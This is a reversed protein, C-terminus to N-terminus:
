GGPSAKHDELWKKARVQTQELVAGTLFSAAKDRKRAASEALVSGNKATYLEYALFSWFYAEKPDRPVGLGRIYVSGLWDQAASYGQEAARLEWITAQAVDRLVGIGNRYCSGLWFQGVANGQEAASQYWGFSAANDQPVGWGMDYMLGLRVKAKVNDREAAKRFWVFAEAYDQPVGDASFFTEGRAFLAESALDDNSKGDEMQLTPISKETECIVQRMEAPTMRSWRKESTKSPESLQLNATVETKSRERLIIFDRRGREILSSRARTTLMSTDAPQNTDQLASEDAM